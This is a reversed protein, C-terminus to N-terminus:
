SANHRRRALLAVKAAWRIQRSARRGARDSVAEDCPVSAALDAGQVRRKFDAIVDPATVIAVIEQHLYYSLVYFNSSGLILWRDDILMAKVHNMRGPYLHLDFRSRAAEWIVYRKLAPHNNERPTVITVPVGRRRAEGLKEVFPFTLYPSEVFISARAGDMLEFVRRFLRPNSAGDYAHVEIGPFSGSRLVDEGKWTALFDDRLFQTVDRDEIRLMLDHWAFNHESFNMGGVYCVRDDIAILKKHNRAAFRVLLPGGPNTFKIGIRAGRAEEILRRTDRAKARLANDLLSRPTYLFRDNQVYKTYEDVLIRRDACASSRLAAVLSKGAQDGEFSLTQFFAYNTAPQIDAALSRWFEDSDVLLQMRM